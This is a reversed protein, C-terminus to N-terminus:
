IGMAVKRSTGCDRQDHCWRLLAYLHPLFLDAKKRTESRLETITLASLALTTTRSLKAILVKAPEKHKFFDIMVDTDILSTM